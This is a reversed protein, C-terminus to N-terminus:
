SNTIGTYLVCKAPQPILMQYSYRGTM